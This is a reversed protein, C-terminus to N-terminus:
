SVFSKATLVVDQAARQDVEISEFYTAVRPFSRLGKGRM